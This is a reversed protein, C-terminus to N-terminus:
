KGGQGGSPMGGGGQPMGGGSPMGGGQMGGPMGGQMQNKSSDSSNQAQAQLEEITMGDRYMPSGTTLIETGAEVGTVQINSDDTAGTEVQTRKLAGNEVVFVFSGDKTTIVSTTPVVIIYKLDDILIEANIDYGPKLVDSTADVSISIPVVMVTGNNITEETAENGIEIIEGTYIKEVDDDTYMNVKQGLYVDAIEYQSVSSTVVLNNYNTYTFLEAGESVSSNKSGNITLITGDNPAIVGTSINSLESELEALNEKQLNITNLQQQYSNKTSSDNLPNKAIEYKKNANDLTTKAYHVDSQANNIEKNLNELDRKASNLDAVKDNYTNVYGNYTSQSEVGSEYLVKYNEMDAKATAVNREATAVKDKQTDLSSVKENYTQNATALSKEASTISEKYSMDELESLGDTLANLSITNNEISVKLENIQQQLDSTDYTLIVDGKKVDDGVEFFIDSIKSETESYYSSTEKIEITGSATITNNIEGLEATTTLTNRQIQPEANATKKSKIFFISVCIVIILVAISILVVKKNKFDIKKM